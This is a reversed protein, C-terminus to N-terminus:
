SNLWDEWDMRISGSLSFCETGRCLASYLDEIKM